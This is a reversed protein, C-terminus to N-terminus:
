GPKAGVKDLAEEVRERQKESQEIHAEIGERLEPESVKRLARKMGQIAQKEASYADRLQEILMEQLEYM